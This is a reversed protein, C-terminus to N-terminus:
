KLFYVQTIKFNIIGIDINLIELLSLIAAVLIVLTFFTVYIYFFKPFIIKEVVGTLPKRFFQVIIRFMNVMLFIFAIVVALLLIINNTGIKLFNAGNFYKIFPEIHYAFGSWSIFIIILNICIYINSRGFGKINDISDSGTNKEVVSFISCIPMFSFLALLVNTINFWDMLSKSIIGTSFMSINLIFIGIFFLFLFSMIRRISNTKFAGISGAFICIFTIVIFFISMKEIFLENLKLFMFIGVPFYLFWIVANSSFEGRKILKMYPGQLPFLFFYLYIAIGFIILGLVILPNSIYESQLIQNFDKLDTAGYFLSFGFFFLIVTLTPRLFYGLIYPRAKNTKINLATVLQFITLIFITLSTFILLFNRAVVVFVACITSFLFLILIKIFHNSDVKYISIFFLLNVASFLIISVEIMQANEFSLLFNSFNGMSIFSYINLYFALILSISTVIILFRKVAKSKSIVFFSSIFIAASLVIISQLPNIKENIFLVLNM